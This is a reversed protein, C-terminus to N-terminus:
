CRKVGLKAVRALSFESQGEGPIRFFRKSREYIKEELHREKTDQVGDRRESKIDKNKIM